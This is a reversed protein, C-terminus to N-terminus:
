ALVICPADRVALMVYTHLQSPIFVALFTHLVQLNALAHLHPEAVQMGQLQSQQSQMLQELCLM